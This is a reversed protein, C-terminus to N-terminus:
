RATEFSKGLSEGFKRFLSALTAEDQVEEFVNGSIEKLGYYALVSVLDSYNIRKGLMMLRGLVTLMLDDVFNPISLTRKVKKSDKFLGETKIFGERLHKYLENTKKYSM